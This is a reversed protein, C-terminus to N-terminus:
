QKGYFREEWMVHIKEDDYDGIDHWKVKLGNRVLTDTIYNRDAQSLEGNTEVFVDGQGNKAASIIAKSIIKKYIDRQSPKKRAQEMIARIGEATINEM